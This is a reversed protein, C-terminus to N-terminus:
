QLIRQQQKTEPDICIHLVRLQINFSSMWFQQLVELGDRGVSPEDNFDEEYEDEEENNKNYEHYLTLLHLPIPFLNIM